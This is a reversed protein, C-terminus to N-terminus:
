FEELKSSESKQTPKILGNTLGAAAGDWVAKGNKNRWDNPLVFVKGQIHLKRALDTALYRMWKTADHRKTWDAKFSELKPDGKEENDFAVIVRRCGVRRLWDEGIRAIDRRDRLEDGLAAPYVGAVAADADGAVDGEIFRGRWVRRHRHFGEGSQGGTGESERRFGTGDIGHRNATLNGDDRVARNGNPHLFDQVGPSHPEIAIAGPLARDDPAVQVAREGGGTGGGQHAGM